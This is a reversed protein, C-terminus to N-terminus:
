LADPVAPHSSCAASLSSPPLPSGIRKAYSSSTNFALFLQASGYGIKTIMPPDLPNYLLLYASKTKYKGDRSFGWIICDPMDHSLGIPLGRISDTISAPLNFSLHSFDWTINPLLISSVLINNEGAPLPGHVISRLLERGVWRDYWFFASAGNGIAWKDGKEWVEMGARIAKWNSSGSVLHALNHTVFKEVVFNFDQKTHTSLGIPFGLYKGLDDTEGINFAFCTHQRQVSSTNKSFLLKSKELNIKMGSEKYFSDLASQAAHITNPSTTGMLLIDDAFMLHTMPFSSRSPKVGKWAKLNVMDEILHVPYEMCLIFLYPSISDGQRIGRSPTFSDLCSGNFLISAQKGKRKRFSHIVERLLIANDSSRRGPVFSCQFPSILDGLHPRLRRVLIKSIIKYLTNCLSIPGYHSITELSNNKPILVILTDNAGELFVSTKFFQLVVQQVSPEIIDWCRQAVVHVEQYTSGSIDLQIRDTRWMIWIGGFHGITETCFFGDYPFTAATRTAREGSLHTETLIVIDPNHNSIVDKLSRRFNANGAGRCNWALLNMHYVNPHAMNSTFERNADRPMYPFSYMPDARPTIQLSTEVEGQPMPWIAASILLIQVTRSPLIMMLNEESSSTATMFPVNLLGRIVPTLRPQTGQISPPQIISTNRRHYPCALDLLIERRLASGNETCQMPIIPSDPIKEVTSKDKGRDNVRGMHYCTTRHRAQHHGESVNPVEASPFSKGAAMQSISQELAKLTPARNNMTGNITTDLLSRSSSALSAQARQNRPNPSVKKKHNQVMLWPSYSLDEDTSPPHVASPMTEPIPPSTALDLCKQATHRVIGCNFCLKDIGEYQLPQEFDGIWITTPLPRTLDVQVCLRAYKGRMGLYTRSDISLIPGIRNGIRSLLKEYYFEIPLEPLCVWVAVTSFTAKSPRFCPEWLHVTLFQRGVFWPGDRIVLLTGCLSFGGPSITFNLPNALSNSSSPLDGPTGYPKNRKEPSSSVSTATRSPTWMKPWMMTLIMMASGVNWASFVKVPGLSTVWLSPFTRPHALKKIEALWLLASYAMCASIWPQFDEAHIARALRSHSLLPHSTSAEFSVVSVGRHMRQRSSSKPWKTQAM